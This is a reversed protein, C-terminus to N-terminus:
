ATLLAQALVPALQLSNTIHPISDTSHIETIGARHLEEQADEVFLAHTVLAAVDTAGAARLERATEAVTRGTSAVDDVIVAHRGAVDIRPLAIKVRRDGLRTKTAVAFDLGAPEAIAKVWQEAERDPAILVPSYPLTMLWESMVPTAQISVAHQVPVADALRRTRHLHPDVTVLRDFHRSLFQGIIRQSVAEGEHFAVDQRMYCLYPAVLTLRAAGLEFATAAALELEILKGNPDNLSRCLIVDPPLEPPLQVLSEGDPFQHVAIGSYRIGAQAALRRAPEEYEPFGLLISSDKAAYGAREPPL